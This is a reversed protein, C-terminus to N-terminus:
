RFLEDINVPGKFYKQPQSVRAKCETCRGTTVEFYCPLQIPGSVSSCTPLHRELKFKRKMKGRRHYQTVLGDQQMIELTKKPGRNPSLDITGLVGWGAV